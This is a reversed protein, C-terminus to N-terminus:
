KAGLKSRLKYDAAYREAVRERAKRRFRRYGPAAQRHPLDPLGFEVQLKEWESQLNEYLVLRDADGIQYSASQFHKDADKDETKCCQSVFDNFKLGTRYKLGRMNKNVKLSNFLSRLRERPDRIVALTTCSPLGLESIYRADVFICAPGLGHYLAERISTCAAKRIPVYAFRHQPWMLTDLQVQDIRLYGM